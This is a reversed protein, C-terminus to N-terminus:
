IGKKEYIKNMKKNRSRKNTKSPTVKILEKNVKNKVLKIIEDVYKGSNCLNVITKNYEEFTANKM